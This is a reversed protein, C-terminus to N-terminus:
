KKIDDVKCKLCKMGSKLKRHLGCTISGHPCTLKELEKNSLKKQKFRKPIKM